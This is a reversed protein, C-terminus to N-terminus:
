RKSIENNGVWKYSNIVNKKASYGFGFQCDSSEFFMIVTKVLKEYDDEILSMQNLLNIIEKEHQNERENWQEQTYIKKNEYTIDNKIEFYRTIESENM